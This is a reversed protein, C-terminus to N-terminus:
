YDRMPCDPFPLLPMSVAEQQNALPNEPGFNVLILLAPDVPCFQDSGLNEM